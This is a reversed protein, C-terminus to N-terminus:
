GALPNFKKEHGITTAEGHGPYVPTEESLVFLKDRVSRALESMSGTPFDTRGYSELFLTDGSLLFRDGEFYYCCSGKTHGPTALVQIAMGALTLEEGDSLLVDPKVTFGEGLWASLNYTMNELIEEEEKLCYVPIDYAERIEKVAGIHDFHGHTLLIAMPKLGREAILRMLRDAEGAPDALLLKKTDDDYIFYCNTRMSGTPMVQMMTQGM